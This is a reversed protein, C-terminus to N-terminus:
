LEGGCSSCFRARENAATGCNACFRAATESAHAAVVPTLPITATESIEIFPLPAPQPPTEVPPAPVAAEVQAEAELEQALEESWDIAPRYVPTPEVPAPPPVAARQEYRAPPLVRNALMEIDFGEKRVRSDLYLLTFSLLVIPAILIEALQTLTQQAITFWLPGTTDFISTVSLGDSGHFYSYWGLPVLLLAYLSWAVCFQFLLVAGIRKFERGALTFSRGFADFVGKGEVMMAQPTYVVRTYAILGAAILSLAVAGGFLVHMTIMLWNPLINTLAVVALFYVMIVMAFIMYLAFVIMLTFILLMITAGLLGWFRERVARYVDRALVPTGNFFHLVLARSAAGMVMLFGAKGVVWMIGGAIMATVMLFMRLDGHEFSINRIGIMWLIGGAFALLSTPLVIRIFALLQLRYLRVARDIIDGASLPALSFHTLTDAPAIVNAAHAAEATDSTKKIAPFRYLATAM